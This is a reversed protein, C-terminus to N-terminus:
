TEDNIASVVLKIFGGALPQRLRMALALAALVDARHPHLWPLWSRQTATKM